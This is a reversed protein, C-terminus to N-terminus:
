QRFGRVSVLPRLPKRAKAKELEEDRVFYHQEPRGPHPAIDCRFVKGSHLSYTHNCTPNM